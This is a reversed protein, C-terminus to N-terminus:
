SRKNLILMIFGLSLCSTILSLIKINGTTLDDFRAYFWTLASGGSMIGLDNFDDDDFEIDPFQDDSSDFGLDPVVLGEVKMQEIASYYQSMDISIDNNITYGVINGDNDFEPVALGNLIGSIIVSTSISGASYVLNGNIYIDDELSCSAQTSNVIDYYSSDSLFQYSSPVYSSPVTDFPVSNYHLIYFSFPDLLSSFLANNYSNQINIYNASIVNQNDRFVYGLHTRYTSAGDSLLTGSTDYVYYHFNLACWGTYTSHWCPLLYPTDSTGIVNTVNNFSFLSVSTNRTTFTGSDGFFILIGYRYNGEADRFVFDFSQNADDNVLIESPYNSLSFNVDAAFCPVALAIVMATFVFIFLSFKKFFAM